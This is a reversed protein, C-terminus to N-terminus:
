PIPPGGHFGLVGVRNVGYGWWCGGVKCYEETREVSNANMELEAQNRILWNLANSFNMAYLLTLGAQSGSIQGMPLTALIYVGVM